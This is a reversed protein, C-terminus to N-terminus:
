TINRGAAAPQHDPELLGRVRMPCGGMQSLVDLRTQGGFVHDAHNKFVTKSERPITWRGGSESEVPLPWWQGDRDRKHLFWKGDPTEAWDRFIYYRSRKQLQGDIVLYNLRDRSGRVVCARGPLMMAGEPTSAGARTGLCVGLLASIALRGRRRRSTGRHSPSSHRRGGLESAKKHDEQAKVGRPSRQVTRVWEAVHQLLYM